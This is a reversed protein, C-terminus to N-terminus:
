GFTRKRPIVGSWKLNWENLIERNRMIALAEEMLPIPLPVNQRMKRGNGAWWHEYALTFLIPDSTILSTDSSLEDRLDDPDAHIVEGNERIWSKDVDGMPLYYAYGLELITYKSQFAHFEHGDIEVYLALGRHIPPKTIRM